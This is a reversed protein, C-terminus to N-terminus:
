NVLEKPPDVPVATVPIISDQVSPKSPMHHVDLKMHTIMHWPVFIRKDFTIKGHEPEPEDENKFVVLGASLVLKTFRDNVLFQLHEVSEVRDYVDKIHVERPFNEPRKREDIYATFVVYYSDTAM